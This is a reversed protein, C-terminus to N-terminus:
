SRAILKIARKADLHRLAQRLETLVHFQLVDSLHVITRVLQGDRFVLEDNEILRILEVVDSTDMGEKLVYAHKGCIAIEFKDLRQFDPATTLGYGDYNM